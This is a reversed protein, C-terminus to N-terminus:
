YNEWWDLWDAWGLKNLRGRWVRGVDPCYLWIFHDDDTRMKVNTTSYDFDEPLEYRSNYKWTIGHDRSQYFQTYAPEDCGGIGEGGLALVGDEYQVLQLNKLRPLAMINNYAHEMYTWYSEPANQSYDVIKRWVMAISEQPYESVSRNGVMLVYDTSDALFIPYSIIAIDQTPLMSADEDLLEEKWTKGGDRSSEIRKDPTLRYIEATSKGIYVSGDPYTTGEETPEDTWDGVEQWTFVDAEQQHVNIKITYTNINNGDSSYIRVTRPVSYDISDLLSYIRLTDSDIDKILAYGNNYTTLTSAIHKVDSGVPLSDANYIIRQVNDISFDYNSGSFTVKYISDAGTSSTTHMYRNVTGLSFDIIAADDYLTVESSSSNLCSTMATLAVLMMSWIKFQRMLRQKNLNPHLNVCLEAFKLM